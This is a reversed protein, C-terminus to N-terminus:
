PAFMDRSDAAAPRASNSGTRTRSAPIPMGVCAPSRCTRKLRDVMREASGTSPRPAPAASRDVGLGLGLLPDGRSQDGPRRRARARLRAPARYNYKFGGDGPPNHSPTDVIGNASGRGVGGSYELITYSIVPAPTPTSSWTSATPSLYRSPRRPPRGRCRARTALFAAVTDRALRPIVLTRNEVGGTCDHHRCAATLTSEAGCM